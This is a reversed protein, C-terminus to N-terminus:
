GSSLALCIMHQEQEKCALRHMNDLRSLLLDLSAKKELRLALKLAVDWLPFSSFSCAVCLGTGEM